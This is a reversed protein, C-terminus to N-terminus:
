MFVLLCDFLSFFFVGKKWTRVVLFHNCAWPLAAAYLIIHFVNHVLYGVM